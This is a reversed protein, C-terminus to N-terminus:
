NADGKDPADAETWFAKAWQIRVKQCPDHWHLLDRALRDFNIPVRKQKAARFIGTLQRCVAAAHRCSLLHRFRGDFSTMGEERQNRGLAIRRMTEGLNGVGKGKGKMLLAMGGAVTLWIAGENEHDLVTPHIALLHPWARYQMNKGLGRRLDALIWRASPNTNYLDGKIWADVAGIIRHIPFAQPQAM